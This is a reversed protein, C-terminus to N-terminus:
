SKVSTCRSIPGDRETSVQVNFSLSMLYHSSDLPSDQRHAEDRQDGLKPGVEFELLKDEGIKRGLGVIM